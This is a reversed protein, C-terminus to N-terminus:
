KLIVDIVKKAIDEDVNDLVGSFTIARLAHLKRDFARRQMGFLVYEDYKEPTKRHRESRRTPETPLTRRKKAKPRVVVEEITDEINDEEVTNETTDQTTTHTTEDKDDSNENEVQEEICVVDETAVDHRDEEQEIETSEDNTQTVGISQQEKEDEVETEELSQIDPECADGHVLTQPVLLM